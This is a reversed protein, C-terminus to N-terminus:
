KWYGQEYNLFNYNVFNMIPKKRNRVLTTKNNKLADTRKRKNKREENRFLLAVNKVQSQRESQNKSTQTDLTPQKKWDRFFDAFSSHGQGTPDYPAKISDSAISKTNEWPSILTNKQKIIVNNKEDFWTDQDGIKEKGKEESPTTNQWWNTPRILYNKEDFWTDQDGIKEKGNKEFPFSKTENGIESFKDGPPIGDIQMEWPNIMGDVRVHDEKQSYNSPKDSDTRMSQDYEGAQMQIISSSLNNKAINQFKKKQSKKM